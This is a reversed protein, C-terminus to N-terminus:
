SVPTRMSSRGFMVISFLPALDTGRLVLPFSFVMHNHDLISSVFSQTFHFKGNCPPQRPSSESLSGLRLAADSRASVAHVALPPIVPSKKSEQHRELGVLMDSVQTTHSKNAACLSSLTRLKRLFEPISTTYMGPPHVPSHWTMSTAKFRGNLLAM